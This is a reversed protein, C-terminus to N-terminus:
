WDKKISDTLDEHVFIRKVSNITVNKKGPAPMGSLNKKNVIKRDFWYLGTLTDSNIKFVNFWMGISIPVNDTWEVFVTDKRLIYYGNLSIKSENDYCENPTLNRVDGYCNGEIVKGDPYFRVYGISSDNQIKYVGDYKILGTTDHFDPRYLYYDDKRFLKTHKTRFIFCGSFTIILLLFIARTANNHKQQKIDLKFNSKKVQPIAYIFSCAQRGTPM